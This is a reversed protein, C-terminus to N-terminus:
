STWAIPLSLSVRTGHGADSEILVDGGAAMARERMGVLGIGATRRLKTDFGRGDDVIVLRIRGADPFAELVVQCHTAQAHKVVNSLAEQAVRYAPMAVDGKLAPFGNGVRFTFRCGSHLSDVRRVMEDLAGALGVTDILEPRMQKVINRASAYLCETTEAISAAIRNIADIDQAGSRAASTLATAQLRLSILAANLHDHIEVSFKRREEEVLDNGRAILRRKEADAEQVRTMAQQLEMTRSAVQAELEHRSVGLSVAMETIAHQLEGMEGGQPKFSVDFGGMRISRLASLVEALPKRMRKALALGVGASFLAAALVLLGAVVMHRHKAALMPAASMTVQVYGANRVAKERPDIARQSPDSVHPANSRDFLDVELQRIQIAAQYADGAQFAQHGGVEVLTRGQSDTIRIAAINRDAALLGQLPQELNATNGSIVAYQSSQALATAILQGREAVDRRVDSLGAFYLAATVAVFMLCAPVVAILLLRAAITWEAWAFRYQPGSM